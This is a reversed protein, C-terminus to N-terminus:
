KINQNILIEITKIFNETPELYKKVDEEDIIVWDSYDGDQRFTKM